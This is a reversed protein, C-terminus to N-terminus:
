QAQVPGLCVVAQAPHAGVDQEDSDGGARQHTGEDGQANEEEELLDCHERARKEDPKREEGQQAHEDASAHHKGVHAGPGAAPQIGVVNQHHASGPLRQGVDLRQLVVFLPTQVDQAHHM